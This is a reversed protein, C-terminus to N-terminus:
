NKSSTGFEPLPHQRIIHKLFYFWSKYLDLIDLIKNLENIFSLVRVYFTAVLEFSFELLVHM